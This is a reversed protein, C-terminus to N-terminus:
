PQFHVAPVANFSTGQLKGDEWAIQKIHEPVKHVPEGLPEPTHFIITVQKDSWCCTAEVHQDETGQLKAPLAVGHKGPHCIWYTDVPLQHARAEQVAMKLGARLIQEVAGVGAQAKPWWGHEGFWHQEVHVKEDQTLVGFKVGLEALPTPGDLAALIADHKAPDSLLRDLNEFITGKSMTGPMQTM